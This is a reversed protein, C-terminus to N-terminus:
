LVLASRTVNIGPPYGLDSLMKRVMDEAGTPALPGVIIETISGPDKLPLDHEVYFKDGLPKRIGDFKARVNMIVGRVERENEYKDHKATLCNWILQSAIFEDAMARIFSTSAERGVQRANANGYESTIYAARDVVLRHRARTAANGYIIRGIHLNENATDSLTDKDPQLLSPAFGIVYGKGGKGYELWHEHDERHRTLSFLYFEFTDRISNCELLDEICSCLYRRFFDDSWGVTRLEERAIEMSYSFEMEDRQHLHSFCWIHQNSLIGRLAVEDTYHYLPESPTAEHQETLLLRGQSWSVFEQLGAQLEPPLHDHRDEFADPM